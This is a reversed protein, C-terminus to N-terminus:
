VKNHNFFLGYVNTPTAAPNGQIRLYQADIPIKYEGATAITAAATGTSLNTALIPTFNTANQPMGDRVGQLAGGDNTGYVFLVGTIPSKVQLTTKDWGSMDLTINYVTNFRQTGDLQRNIGM